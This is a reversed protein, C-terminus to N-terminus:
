FRYIVHSTNVDVGRTPFAVLLVKPNQAIERGVLVKQVNGGSMQRVPASISPTMVELQEKIKLALAKPGKRDLFPSKGNRYSRLMMNDTMDMDGVLGYRYPRGSCFCPQDQKILPSLIWEQM